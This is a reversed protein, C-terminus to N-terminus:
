YFSRREILLFVTKRNHTRREIICRQWLQPREVERAVGDSEERRLEGGQDAERGSVKKYISLGDILYFSRREM